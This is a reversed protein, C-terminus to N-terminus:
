NSNNGWSESWFASTLVPDKTVVRVPSHTVTDVLLWNADDSIIKYELTQRLLGSVVRATDAVTRTVIVGRAVGDMPSTQLALPHVDRFTLARRELNIIREVTYEKIDLDRADKPDYGQRILEMEIYDTGVKQLVATIHKRVISATADSKSKEPALLALKDEQSLLNHACLREIFEDRTDRVSDDFIRYLAKMEAHQDFLRTVFVVVPKAQALTVGAESDKGFTDSEQAHYVTLQARKIMLCEMLGKQIRDPLFAQTPDFYRLHWQELEGEHFLRQVFAWNTTFHLPARMSTAVYVNLDHMAMYTGANQIGDAQIQEINEVSICSELLHSLVKQYDKPTDGLSLESEVLEEARPIGAKAILSTLKPVSKAAAIDKLGEFDGTENKLAENLIAALTKRASNIEESQESGLNGLAFLQSAKIDILGEPSPSSLIKDDREKIQEPSPFYKKWKEEILKKNQRLKKYGFRFNGYELMCLIRFREVKQAVADIDQFDVNSFVTEFFEKSITMINLSLLLRNFLDARADPPMESTASDRLKPWTARIGARQSKAVFQKELLLGARGTMLLLQHLFNKEEDSFSSEDNAPKSADASPTPNTDM